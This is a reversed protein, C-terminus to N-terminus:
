TYWALYGNIHHIYTGFGIRHSIWRLLDFAAFRDFSDKSIAVVLFGLQLWSILYVRALLPLLYQLPILSHIFALKEM